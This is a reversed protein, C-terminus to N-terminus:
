LVVVDAGVPARNYLDIVDENLMRICGSSIAQGLLEPQNTGHIRFLTDRSGQYLYLARAGMPNHPGPGVYAPLGSIRQHIEPTPTWSPWETKRGVKAQGRFALSEEGVTVGYRIAKGKDEVLYLFKNPTDVIITGPKKGTPYDVIHRALRGEPKVKPYPAQALLQKDRPKLATEPTPALTESVCGGLMLGLLLAGVARWMM